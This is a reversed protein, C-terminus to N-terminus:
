FFEFRRAYVNSGGAILGVGSYDFDVLKLGNDTNLFNQPVLDNHCLGMPVSANAFKKEIEYAVGLLRKFGDSIKVDNAYVSKIFM